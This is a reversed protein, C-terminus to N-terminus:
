LNQKSGESSSLGKPLQDVLTVMKAIEEFYRQFTPVTEAATLERGEERM